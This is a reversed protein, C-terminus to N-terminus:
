PLMSQSPLATGRLIRIGQSFSVPHVTIGMKAQPDPTIQIVEVLDGPPVMAIARELLRLATAIRIEVFGLLHFDLSLKAILIACRRLADMALRRMEMPSRPFGGAPLADGALFTLRHGWKLQDLKFNVPDQWAWLLSFIVIFSSCMAVTNSIVFIKFAATHDHIATGDTQGYRAAFSVTAILTAV